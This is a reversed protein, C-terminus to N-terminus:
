VQKKGGVAGICGGAVNVTEGKEPCRGGTAMQFAVMRKGALTPTKKNFDSFIM